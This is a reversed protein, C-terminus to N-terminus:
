LSLTGKFIMIVSVIAILSCVAFVIREHSQFIKQGINKKNFIFVISGIFYLITSFALYKLGAAYILWVGYVTAILSVFLDQKRVKGELFSYKAGKVVAILAFIASFLYPILIMSTSVLITALYGNHYIHAIILYVQQCAATILLAGYPSHKKNEAGFIKPFLRDRQAAIFPVEVALLIWSLLAGLVSVILGINILVAGPKGIVRALVSGTSPDSLKALEPQSLIGFPLESVLVLVSFVLLFGIMTARGVDIRKKARASFVSAGEIGIFTWVTILMTGKIQELISGSGFSKKAWIDQLFIDKNFAYAIIVIFIIVPIIKAFTTINNVIAASKLGSICLFTMLWVMVSSLLLSYLNIGNGLIPFFLSLSSCLIMVYGINGIWASVWYGWASCFGLYDGLGSKAYSYVGADLNPYRMSLNQFVKALCIMGFFTIVWSIALAAPGSTYAVNQPLAFLGSGIMSGVCLAVLSILGLKNNDSNTM